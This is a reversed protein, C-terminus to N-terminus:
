ARAEKLALLDRVLEHKEGGPSGEISVFNYENPWIFKCGRGDFTAAAHKEADEATFTPQAFLTTAKFTLGFACAALRITTLPTPM